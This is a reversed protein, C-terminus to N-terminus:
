RAGADTGGDGGADATPREGGYCYIADGETGCGAVAAATALAAALALRSRPRPVKVGGHGRRYAACACQPDLRMREDFQGQRRAEVDDGFCCPCAAREIEDM